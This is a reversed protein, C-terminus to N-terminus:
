EADRPVQTRTKFLLPPFLHDSKEGEEPV